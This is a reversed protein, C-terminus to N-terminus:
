VSRGHPECFLEARREEALVDYLKSEGQRVFEPNVLEDELLCKPTADRILDEIPWLLRELGSGQLIVRQCPTLMQM